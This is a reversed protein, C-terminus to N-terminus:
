NHMVASSVVVTTESGDCLTLIMQVFGGDGKFVCSSVNSCITRTMLSVVPDLSGYEIRLETGYSYLRAYSDLETSSGSQYYYVELWTGDDAVQIDDKSASRIITDFRRRARDGDTTVKCHMRKYMKNWGRQSDGLVAGVGLLVVASIATAVTLEILTFGKRNTITKKSM